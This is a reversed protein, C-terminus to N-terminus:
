IPLKKWTSYPLKRSSQKGAFFWVNQMRRETLKENEVFVM